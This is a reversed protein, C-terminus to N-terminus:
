QPAGGDAGGKFKHTTVTDSLFAMQTYGAPLYAPAAEAAADDPAADNGTSADDGPQSANNSCALALAALSALFVCRM